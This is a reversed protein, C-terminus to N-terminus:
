RTRTWTGTFTADRDACRADNISHLVLRRGNVSWRYAGRPEHGCFGGQQEAPLLWNPPGYLTLTHPSASGVAQAGSGGIPDDFRIIGSRHIHLTWTGTPTEDGSPRHAQTRKIDATSVHRRFTGALAAPLKPPLQVTVESAAGATTGNTAHARVALRHKGASLLWPALGNGDENFDYPVKLETHRVRGDILFDVSTITAAGSGAVTASWAVASSLTAGSSISSVVHVPTAAASKPRDPTSSGCGAALAAVAVASLMSIVSHPM